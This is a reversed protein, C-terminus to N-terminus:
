RRLLHYNVLKSYATACRSTRSYCNEIAFTDCFLVLLNFGAMGNTELPLSSFTKAMNGISNAAGLDLTFIRWSKSRKIVSAEFEM